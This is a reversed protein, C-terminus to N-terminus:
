EGFGLRRLFETMDWGSAVPYPKPRVWTSGTTYSKLDDYLDRLIRSWWEQDVERSSDEEEEM